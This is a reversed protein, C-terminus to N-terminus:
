AFTHLNISILIRFVAKFDHNAGRKDYFLIIVITSM